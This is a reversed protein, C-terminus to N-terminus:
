KVQRRLRVVVAEGSGMLRLEDDVLDARQTNELAKFFKDEQGQPVPVCLMRTAALPGVKFSGADNSFRGVFSNCGGNGGLRDQGSWRLRPAPESVFAVGDLAVVIWEAGQLTQIDLVNMQKTQEEPPIVCGLLALCIGAGWVTSFVTRPPKHTM